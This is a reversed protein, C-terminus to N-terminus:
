GKSELYTKLDQVNVEGHNQHFTCQEDRILLLQPSEHQINFKRAILNSLERYQILDLYYSPLVSSLNNIELRNKAM